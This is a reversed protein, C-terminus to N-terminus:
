CIGDLPLGISKREMVFSSVVVERKHTNKIAANCGDDGGRLAGVGRQVMYKYPNNTYRPRNFGADYLTLGGVEWGSQM